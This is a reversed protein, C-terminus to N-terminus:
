LNNLQQSLTIHEQSLQAVQNQDNSDEAAKILDPLLQMRAKIRERKLEAATKIVESQPELEDTKIETEAVFTLLEIQSKLDPQNAGIVIPDPQALIAGVLGQLNPNFDAQALGALPRNDKLIL